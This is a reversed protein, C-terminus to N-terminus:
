KLFRNFKTMGTELWAEEQTCAKRRCTATGAEVSSEVGLSSFIVWPRGAVRNSRGGRGTIGDGEGGSGGEGGVKRAIAVGEECITKLEAAEEKGRRTTATEVEEKAEHRFDGVEFVEAESSLRSRRRWEIHLIAPGRVSIQYINWIM